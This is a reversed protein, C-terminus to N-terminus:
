FEYSILKDVLVLFSKDNFCIVNDKIVKDNSLLWFLYIIVYKLSKLKQDLYLNWVWIINNYHLIFEESLWEISLIDSYYSSESWFSFNVSYNSLLVDISYIIKNLNYIIYREDNSIIANNLKSLYEIIKRVQISISEFLNNEYSIKCTEIFDKRNDEWFLIKSNIICNYYWKASEIDNTLENLLSDKSVLYLYLIVPFERWVELLLWIESIKSDKNLILEFDYDSFKKNKWTVMSWTQLLMNVDSLVLNTISIIKDLNTSLYNLVLNNENILSDSTNLLQITWSYM